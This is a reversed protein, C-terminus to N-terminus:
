LTRLFAVLEAKQQESLLNFRLDYFNVVELLTAASGNHFYAGEGLASRAPSAAGIVTVVLGIALCRGRYGVLVRPTMM